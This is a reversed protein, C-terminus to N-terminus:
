NQNNDIKNIKDRLIIEILSIITDDFPNDTRKAFERIIMIIVDVIEEFPILQIVPQIWKFYQM